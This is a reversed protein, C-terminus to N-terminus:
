FMFVMDDFKFYAVSGLLTDWGCIDTTHFIKSFYAIVIISKYM